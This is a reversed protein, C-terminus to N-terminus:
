RSGRIVYWRSSGIPSGAAILVKRIQEAARSAPPLTISDPIPPPSSTAPYLFSTCRTAFRVSPLGRRSTAVHLRDMAHTLVRRLPRPVRQYRLAIRNALHKRYGALLEHAEMGSPIL